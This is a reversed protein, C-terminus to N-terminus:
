CISYSYFYVYTHTIAKWTAWHYLIKRGICFVHTWNRPWSSGKSFSIDIWELIRTQFIGHVSSDLPSYDIPDCLSLCSQTFLVKVKWKWFTYVEGKECATPKYLLDSPYHSKFFTKKLCRPTISHIIKYDQSIRLKM